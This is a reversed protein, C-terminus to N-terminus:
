RCRTADWTWSGGGALANSFARSQPNYGAHFSFTAQIVRVDGIAKDKILEVLRKTQPHCRYMFAEMLFVNNQEAADQIAQWDYQNVGSPKEVLVHKGAEASKIAWEAHQPHPTAIYVAQVTADALMAEYSGFCREAPLGWKGGFAVAKDKSRSAVASLTGTRSAGIARALTGAIAGTSIIGWNLTDTM